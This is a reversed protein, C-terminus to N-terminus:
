RILMRAFDNKFRDGTRQAPTILRFMDDSCVVMETAQRSLKMKRATPFTLVDEEVGSRRPVRNCGGVGIVICRMLRLCVGNLRGRGTWPVGARWDAPDRSQLRAIVPQSAIIALQKRIGRFLSCLCEFDTAAPPLKQRLELLTAPPHTSNFRRRLRNFLPSRGTEVDRMPRQLLHRESRPSKRRDEGPHHELVQDIRNRSHSLNVGPQFGATAEIEANRIVSRQFRPQKPLVPHGPFSRSVQMVKPRPLQTRDQSVTIEILNLDHVLSVHTVIIAAECDPQKFTMRIRAPSSPQHRPKRVCRRKRDM